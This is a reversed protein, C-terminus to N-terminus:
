CLFLAIGDTCSFLKHLLRRYTLATRNSNTNLSLVPLKSGHTTLVERCYGSPYQLKGSSSSCGAACLSATDNKGSRYRDMFCGGTYLIILASGIIFGGHLNSGFWCLCPFGIEVKTNGHDPRLMAFGLFTFIQPVPGGQFDAPVADYLCCRCCFSIQTSSGKEIWSSELVSSFAAFCLAKL